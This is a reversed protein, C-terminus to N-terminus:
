PRPMGKLLGKKGTVNSIIHLVHVGNPLIDIKEIIPVSDRPIGVTETDNKIGYGLARAKSEDGLIADQTQPIYKDVFINTLASDAQNIQATLQREQERVVNRQAILARIATILGQVTAIPPNLNPVFLPNASHGDTIETYRKLRELLNSGYLGIILILKKILKKAM